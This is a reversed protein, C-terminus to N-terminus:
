MKSAKEVPLDKEGIRKTLLLNKVVQQTITSAGILKEDNLFSLLNVFSARIIAFLDIGIHSYFKKDESSIFANILDNPIRQIPIFVREQRHYSKLLKGDSTYLRSSLDPKYELIKNYGPLEPSYKWLISLSLLFFVVCLIMCLATIIKLIKIM